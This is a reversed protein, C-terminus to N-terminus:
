PKWPTDPYDGLQKRCETTRLNSGVKKVSECVVGQVEMGYREIYYVRQAEVLDKYKAPIKAFLKKYIAAAPKTKGDALMSEACSLM